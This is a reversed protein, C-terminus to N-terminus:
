QVPEAVRDYRQNETVVLRIQDLLDDSPEPETPEHLTSWTPRYERAGYLEGSGFMDTLGRGPAACFSIDDPAVDSEETTEAQQKSQVALAFGTDERQAADPPAGFMERYLERMRAGAQRRRAEDEEGGLGLYPYHHLFYGFVTQCDRAYKETDLIHYHWLRDVDMSPAILENPFMKMLLLFRRYDKEAREVREHSWSPGSTRRMLKRKIPELDLGAIAEDKFIDM